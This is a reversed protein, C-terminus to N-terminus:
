ASSPCRSPRIVTLIANTSDGNAAAGNVTIM